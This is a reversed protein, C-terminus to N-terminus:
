ESVRGQLGGRGGDRWSLKGLSHLRRLVRRLIAISDVCHVQGGEIFAPLLLHLILDHNLDLVHLVVITTERFVSAFM